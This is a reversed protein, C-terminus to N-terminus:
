IIVKLEITVVVRTAGNDFVLEYPDNTSLPPVGWEEMFETLATGFKEIM